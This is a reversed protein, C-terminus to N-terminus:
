SHFGDLHTEQIPGHPKIETFIQGQFKSIKTNKDFWADPSLGAKMCTHSLYEETEWAQEVPVQPLLLGKYFGHEVILGDQGIEIQAPYEKPEKVKILQPKTLITIEVLVADLEEKQLPPFRPDQTVSQAAEIIASQLSM